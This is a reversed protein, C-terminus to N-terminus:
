KATGGMKKTIKRRSIDSFDYSKIISDLGETLEGNEEIYAKVTSQLTRPDVREVIIDGLGEERLTDLFDVGAAALEEDSRKSYATKQQLSYNYGMCGISSCDDDVMQQIIEQKAVEIEANNEKTQAALEDKRELLEHLGKVMDTLTKQM